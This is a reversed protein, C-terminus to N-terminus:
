LQYKWYMVVSYKFDCRCKDNEPLYKHMLVHLLSHFPAGALASLGPFSCLFVLLFIVFVAADEQSNLHKDALPMFLKSFWRLFSLGSSTNTSKFPICWMGSYRNISAYHNIQISM